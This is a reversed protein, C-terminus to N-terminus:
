VSAFNIMNKECAVNIQVLLALPQLNNLAVINL